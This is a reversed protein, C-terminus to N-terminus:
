SGDHGDGGVGDGGAGRARWEGLPRPHLVEGRGCARAARREWFGLEALRRNPTQATWGLGTGAGLRASAMAVVVMVVMVLVFMKDFGGDEAGVFWRMRRQRVRVEVVERGLYMLAYEVVEESVPHGGRGLARQTHWTNCSAPARGQPMRPPLFKRCQSQDAAHPPRKNLLPQITMDLYLGRHLRQVLRHGEERFM